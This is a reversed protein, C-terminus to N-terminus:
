FLNRAHQTNSDKNKFSINHLINLKCFFLFKTRWLFLSFRFLVLDSSIKTKNKNHLEKVQLYTKRNQQQEYAHELCIKFDCHKNLPELIYGLWITTQKPKTKKWSEVMNQGIEIRDVEEYQQNMTFATICFQTPALITSAPVTITFSHLVPNNRIHVSNLVHWQFPIIFSHMMCQM